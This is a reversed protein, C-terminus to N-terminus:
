DLGPAEQEVLADLDDRLREYDLRPVGDFVGLVHSIDVFRDRRLPRLEGVPRGHSNVIFSKGDALARM